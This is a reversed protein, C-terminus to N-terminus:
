VVPSRRFRSLWADCSSPPAGDAGVLPDRIQTNFFGDATVFLADAREGVLTALAVDADRESGVDLCPAAAGSSEGCASPRQGPTQCEGSTREPPAPNACANVHWEPSRAVRDPLENPNLEGPPFHQALQAGCLEIAATLSDGLSGAKIAAVMAAIAGTWAERSVKANIGSDAVIEAYREAGSAFILV